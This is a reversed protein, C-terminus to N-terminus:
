FVVSRFSLGRRKKVLAFDIKREREKRGGERGIRDIRDIRDKKKFAWQIPISSLALEYCLKETLFIYHLLILSNFVTEQKYIINM